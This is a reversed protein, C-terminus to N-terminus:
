STLSRLLEDLLLTVATSLLLCAAVRSCPDGARGLSMDQWYQQRWDKAMRISLVLDKMASDTHLTMVTNGLLDVHEQTIRYYPASPSCM